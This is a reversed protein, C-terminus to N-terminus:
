SERMLMREYEFKALMEILELATNDGSRYDHEVCTLFDAKRGYKVILTWFQNAIDLVHTSNKETENIIEEDTKDGIGFMAKLGRSWFLQRRGKFSLAFEQFLKACKEDDLYTAFKLLDWASWNDGRAKKLHSKTMESEINWGWKTVYSSYEGKRFDLGHEASPIALKALRCSNQWLEILPTLDYGEPLEKETFILIHYHPHWGNQGYTVEAAKIHGVKGMSEWILRAKRTGFFKNCAFKLGDLLVALNDGHYHPITLTLMYLGGSHGDVAKKVEAKRVETIKPACHPCLWVSGCRQINDYYAQHRTDNYRVSIPKSADIRCRLCSKVREKPLLKQATDLMAYRVLRVTQFGQPIFASHSKTYIGLAVRNKLDKQECFESLGGSLITDDNARKKAFEAEWSQPSCGEFHYPFKTM